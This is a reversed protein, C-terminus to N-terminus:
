GGGWYQTASEVGLLGLYDYSILAPITNDLEEGM